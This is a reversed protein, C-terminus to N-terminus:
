TTTSKPEAPPNVLAALLCKRCVDFNPRSFSYNEVRLSYTFPHLKGDIVFAAQSSVPAPAPNDKDISKGCIDCSQTKM